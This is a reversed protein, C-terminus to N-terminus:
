SCKDINRQHQKFNKAFTHTDSDPCAYFYLLNSKTVPGLAAALSKPSPTVIPWDPLGANLYTQFSDYQKDVAVTSYDSVGLLDWFLYQDWDSVNKDALAMSDTAYVVTPDAQLLGGTQKNVKPNLRNWYVGAIKARDSDVKAEREVLSAVILADYFPIDKKKAQAVYRSTTKDWEDLMLYIMEEATIDVPVEYTGGQLFGELSSGAPAQALFSYQNRMDKTPNRALRLFEKPDLELDTSETEQQLYAVIQEIRRGFRMDLSIVPTPPDPPLALRAAISAPTIPPTLTYTGPRLLEDVRDRVVAYRFALPDTLLEAEVLSAQIDDLGAKDPEITFEVERDQNDAAANLRDDFEVALLDSVLPMNVIGPNDQFMSAAAPGILPRGAFWGGVVLLILAVIVFALGKFAGSNADQHRNHRLEWGEVIGVRGGDRGGPPTRSM